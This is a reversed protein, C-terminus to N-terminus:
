YQDTADSWRRRKRNQNLSHVISVIYINHHLTQRNTHTDCFIMVEWKWDSRRLRLTLQGSPRAPWLGAKTKLHHRHHHHHHDRRALLHFLLAREGCWDPKKCGVDMLAAPDTGRSLQPMEVYFLCVIELIYLLPFRM